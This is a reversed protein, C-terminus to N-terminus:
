IDKVSLWQQRKTTIIYTMRMEKLTIHICKDESKLLIREMVGDCEVAILQKGM